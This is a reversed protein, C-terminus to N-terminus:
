AATVLGGSTDWTAAAVTGGSRTVRRMEQVARKACPIFQLALMSVAHDFSRDSFPLECADGVDFRAKFNKKRTAHEVYAACLDIGRVAAIRANQALCFTLSGTGCGVDLVCEADMIGTFDIFLPALRCSWRGMQLEYSDANLSAFTSSVGIGCSRLHPIDAM